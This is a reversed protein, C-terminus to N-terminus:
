GEIKPLEEEVKLKMSAIGTWPKLKESEDAPKQPLFPCGDANARPNNWMM